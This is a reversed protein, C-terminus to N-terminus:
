TRDAVPRGFKISSGLDGQALAGAYIVFQEPLPRDLGYRASFADCLAPTAKEGYTATCPDGPIIRVLVFVLLIVGFLVPVSSILRRIIFRTM